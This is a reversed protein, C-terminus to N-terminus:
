SESFPAGNEAKVDVFFDFRRVDWFIVMSGGFTATQVHKEMELILSM